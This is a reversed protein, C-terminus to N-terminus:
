QGQQLAQKQQQLWAERDVLIKRPKSGEFAGVLGEQEM